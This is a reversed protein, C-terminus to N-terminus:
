WGADEGLARVAVSLAGAGDARRLRLHRRDPRQDAAAAAPGPAPAGRARRDPQRAAAAAPRPQGALDSPGAAIGDAIWIATAGAPWPQADIAQLAAARDTPWPQPAM